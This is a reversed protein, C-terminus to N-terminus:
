DKKQAKGLVDFWTKPRRRGGEYTENLYEEAERAWELLQEEAGWEGMAMMGIPMEGEGQDPEVYGVPASVAPNGAMNALFIYMMNHFSTNTDSVGYSEDGASRAWGIMPSTPTMIMLGPHEQFLWALHRMLMERLTNCKIYDAAPTQTASSLLLRNAAGSLSLWDAPNPTRRRAGEAMEAICILGHAIRSEAIRPISIDIVEYGRKKAFYDIAKNCVEAVRPDAEAWWERYVGMVRPAGAEPVKSTGFRGSVPCEPDPQAMLRYAITLDNASAALPGRVAMTMNFHGMRHHSPKLGYVGNFTAPIRISGGADTGVVIPVTGAGLASAGGSTSGGTYYAPNCHNTPSGQAVQMRLNALGSSGARQKTRM